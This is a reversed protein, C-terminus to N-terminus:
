KAKLFATLDNISKEDMWEFSPMTSVRDGGEKVEYWPYNPHAEPNFGKIIVKSPELISEKIYDDSEYRGVFSLDPAMYSPANKLEKYNHCVSCNKMFLEKGRSPDGLTENAMRELVRDNDDSDYLKLAIWESVSNYGGRELLDGNWLSIYIFIAGRNLNLDKDDLKKTISAYWYGNKYMMQMSADSERVLNRRLLGREKYVRTYSDREENFDEFGDESKQPYKLDYKRLSVYNQSVAKQYLTILTKNIDGFHVFPYQSNDQVFSVSYADAFGEMTDFNETDDSWRLLFSIRKGDSLVKIDANFEKMDKLKLDLDKDVSPVIRHPFLKVTEFETSMWARSKIGVFSLDGPVRVVKVSKYGFVASVVIFLIILIKM